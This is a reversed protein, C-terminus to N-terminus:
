QKETKDTCVHLCKGPKIHKVDGWHRESSAMGIIKSTERVAVKGFVVTHPISYQDHWVSLKGKDVDLSNWRYQKSYMGTKKRFQKEEAWFDSIVQGMNADVGYLFLNTTSRKAANRHIGSNRDTVDKRVVPM